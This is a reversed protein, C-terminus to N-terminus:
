CYVWCKAIHCYYCKCGVLVRELWNTYSKSIGGWSVTISEYKKSVMVFRSYPLGLAAIVASQMTADEHHLRVLKSGAMWAAECCKLDMQLQPPPVRHHTESFHSRGDVQITTGTTLHYFDVRGHWWPLDAQCAVQSDINLEQMILMINKKCEPIPEKGAAEWMGTASSCFRCLKDQRNTFNHLTEYFCHGAQCDCGLAFRYRCLSKGLYQRTYTNNTNPVLIYFHEGEKYIGTNFPHGKILAIQVEESM